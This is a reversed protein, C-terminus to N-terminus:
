HEPESPPALLDEFYRLSLDLAVEARQLLADAPAKSAEASRSLREYVEVRERLARIQWAYEKPTTRPPTREPDLTELLARCTELTDGRPLPDGNWETPLRDAVHRGKQDM